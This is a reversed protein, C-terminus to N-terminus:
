KHQYANAPDGKLWIHPRNELSLSPLDKRLILGSACEKCYVKRLPKSKSGINILVFDGWEAKKGCEGCIRYVKPM